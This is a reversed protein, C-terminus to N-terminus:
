ASGDPLAFRHTLSFGFEQHIRADDFAPDIPEARLELMGDVVLISLITLSEPVGTAVSLTEGGGLRLGLADTERGIVLARRLERVHRLTVLVARDHFEVLPRNGSTEVVSGTIEGGVTAAGTLLSASEWAVSSAGTVVLTGVASRRRDIRILPRDADLERLDGVGPAAFPQPGQDPRVRSPAAPSNGGLVLGTAPGATESAREPPAARVTTSAAPRATPASAQPLPHRRRRLYGLDSRIPAAPRM